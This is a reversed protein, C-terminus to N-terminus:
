STTGHHHSLFESVGDVPSRSHNALSGSKKGYRELIMVQSNGSRRWEAARGKEVGYVLQVDTWWFHGMRLPWMEVPAKQGLCRGFTGVALSQPIQLLWAQRRIAEQGASTDTYVGM